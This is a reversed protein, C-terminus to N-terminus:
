PYPHEVRHFIWPMELSVAWSLSLKCCFRGQALKQSTNNFNKSLRRFYKQSADTNEAIAKASGACATEILVTETPDPLGACDPQWTPPFVSEAWFSLMEAKSPMLLGPVAVLLNLHEPLTCAIANVPLTPTPPLRLAAVDGPGPLTESKPALAPAVVANSTEIWAGVPAEPRM